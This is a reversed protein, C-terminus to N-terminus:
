REFRSSVVNMTIMVVGVGTFVIGRLAMDARQMDWSVLRVLCLGLMVLAGRRMPKDDFRLSLAYLVLAELSWILTLWTSGTPMQVVMLALAISLPAAIVRQPYRRALSELRNIWGVIWPIPESELVANSQELRPNRYFSAASLVPVGCWIWGMATETETPILTLAGLAVLFLLVGQGVRRPWHPREPGRWAVLALASLVVMTALHTFRTASMVIIALVALDGSCSVFAKWIRDDKIAIRHGAARILVLLTVFASDVAIVRGDDFPQTALRSLCFGM